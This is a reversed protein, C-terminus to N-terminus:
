FSLTMLHEFRKKPKFSEVKAEYSCAFIIECVKENERLYEIAFNSLRKDPYDVVVSVHLIKRKICVYM